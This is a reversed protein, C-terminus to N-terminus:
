STQAYLAPKGSNDNSADFSQKVTEGTKYVHAQILKGVREADRAQM